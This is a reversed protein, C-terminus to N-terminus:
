KSKKLLADRVDIKAREKILRCLKRWEPAKIYKAYSFWFESTGLIRSRRERERDRAQKERDSSFLFGEEM